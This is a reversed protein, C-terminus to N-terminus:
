SQLVKQLVRVLREPCLVQLSTTVAMEPSVRSRSPNLMLVGPIRAMWRTLVVAVRSSITITPAPELEMLPPPMAIEPPVTCIWFELTVEETPKPPPPRETSPAVESEMRSLLKM